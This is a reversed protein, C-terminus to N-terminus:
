AAVGDDQTPGNLIRQKFAENQDKPLITKRGTPKKAVVAELGHDRYAYAWRQVFGRSRSLMAMAQKTPVDSCALEVVRHRGRQKANTERRILRRVVDVDEPCRWDVDM